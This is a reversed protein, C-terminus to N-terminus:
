ISDARQPRLARGRRMGGSIKKSQSPKSPSYINTFLNPINEIWSKPVTYTGVNVHSKIVRLIESFKSLGHGITFYNGSYGYCLKSKVIANLLRVADDKNTIKGWINSLSDSKLNTLINSFKNSDSLIDAIDVHDIFDAINDITSNIPKFDTNYTKGYYEEEPKGKRVSPESMVKADGDDTIKYYVGRLEYLGISNPKVINNHKDVIKSVSYKGDKKTAIIFYGIGKPKANIELPDIANLIESSYITTGVLYDEISTNQNDGFKSIIKQRDIAIRVSSIDKRNNVYEPIGQNSSLNLHSNDNKVEGKLNNMKLIAYLGNINTWHYVFKSNDSSENLIINKIYLMEEENKCVLVKM